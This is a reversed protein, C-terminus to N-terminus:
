EALGWREFKFVAVVQVVGQAQSKMSSAISIEGMLDTLRCINSVVETM